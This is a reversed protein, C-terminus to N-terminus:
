MGKKRQLAVEGTDQEVLQDKLEFTQALLQVMEASQMAAQQRLSRLSDLNTVLTKRSAALEVRLRSIEAESDGLMRAFTEQQRLAQKRLAEESLSRRGAGGVCAFGACVWAALAAVGLEGRLSPEAALYLGHHAETMAVVFLLLLAVRTVGAARSLSATCLVFMLRRWNNSETKAGGAALADSVFTIAAAVTSLMLM